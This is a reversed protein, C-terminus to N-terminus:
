GCRVRFWQVLRNEAWWRDDDREAGDGAPAAGLFANHGGWRTMLLRLNPRARLTALDRANYPVLPDDEAHIVLGPLEVRPLAHLASARNYYDNASRYGFAPATWLHDMTYFDRFGRAADHPYLHPYREAKGRLAARFGRLFNQMYLRNMAGTHMARCCTVLNFPTSVLAIARVDAPPQTGWLAATHTVISGGISFGAVGVRSRPHHEGVWTALAHLDETLAANYLTPTRDWTGGCNRINLRLTSFGHAFAKAATGLMYPSRASGMLGHVLILVPADPDRQWHTEVKVSTERDVHLWFDHGDEEFDELRRPWRAGVITMAHRDRLLRPPLFPPFRV